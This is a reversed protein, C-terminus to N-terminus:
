VESFSTGDEDEYYNAARWWKRYHLDDLPGPHLLPAGCRARLDELKAFQDNQIAEATRTWQAQLSTDSPLAAKMCQLADQTQAAIGSLQRVTDRTGQGFTFSADWVRDFEAIFTTVRDRVDPTAGISSVTDTSPSISVSRNMMLYVAVFLLVPWLIGLRGM